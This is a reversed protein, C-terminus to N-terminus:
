NSTPNGISANRILHTQPTNGTTLNNNKGSFCAFLMWGVLVGFYLILKSLSLRTTTTMNSTILHFM